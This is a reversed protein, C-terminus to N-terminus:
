IKFKLKNVMLDMEVMKGEEEMEVKFILKQKGIRKMM